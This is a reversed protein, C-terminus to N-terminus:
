WAFLHVREAIPQGAYPELRNDAWLVHLARGELTALLRAIGDAPLLDTHVEIAIRPIRRVVEASTEMVGLEAGEIDLKLVDFPGDAIDELMVMVARERQWDGGKQAVVNSDHFLNVMGREGGIAACTVTAHGIGNLALNAKAVLANFVVADFASVFGGPGTWAALLLTTLGQHCGCELIRDGPRVVHDRLVRMEEWDIAAARDLTLPRAEAEAMTLAPAPPADYWSAAVADGVLYNFGVGCSDKRIIRPTFGGALAALPSADDSAAARKLRRLLALGPLDTTTM